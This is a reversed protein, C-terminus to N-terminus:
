KGNKESLYQKKGTKMLRIAKRVSMEKRYLKRKRTAFQLILFDTFHTKMAAFAAGRSVFYSENMGSYWSSQGIHLRLITEPIYKIKLGQRLCEALFANEEGMYYRTGAGILEDFRINGIAERRIAIEVSSIKMSQLFSINQEEAPYSKFPKEIGEAMFRIIACGPNNRFAKLIIDEYGDVYYLDDDALLCIEGNAHKLCINRSVSLGRTKSNIWTISHGCYEFEEKSDRDCQNVVVADTQVHLRDLLSYDTQNMTSVLVQLSNQSM